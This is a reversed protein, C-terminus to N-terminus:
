LLLPRDYRQWCDPCLKKGNELHIHNEATVEGCGDCVVSQFIRATEPLKIKTPMVDFLQHYDTNRLYKFSEEKSRKERPRLVLRCSKGSKREYFNFAQKGTMHFLLNGKGATCGTLVQVADVGCADNESVCVLEEDEARGASLLELAYLSAKFGIALGGCVHGHFAACKEWLMEEKNSDM